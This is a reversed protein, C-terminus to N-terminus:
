DWTNILHILVTSKKNTGTEMKNFTAEDPFATLCKKEETKM